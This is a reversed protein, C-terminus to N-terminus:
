IVFMWLGLQSPFNSRRGWEHKPAELFDTMLLPKISPCSSFKLLEKIVFLIYFSWIISQRRMQGKSNACRLSLLRWFCLSYGHEQALSVLGQASQEGFFGEKESEAFIDEYGVFCHPDLGSRLRQVSGPHPAQAAWHLLCLSCSLTAWSTAAAAMKPGLQDAPRPM